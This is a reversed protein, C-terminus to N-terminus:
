PRLELRRRSRPPGSPDDMGHSGGAPQAGGAARRTGQEGDPRDAPRAHRHEARSAVAPSGSQRVPRSGRDTERDAPGSHGAGTARPLAQARESLLALTRVPRRLARAAGAAGHAGSRRQAPGLSGRVRHPPRDGGGERATPGSRLARARGDRQGLRAGGDGSGRPDGRQVVALLRLRRRHDGAHARRESVQQIASQVDDLTPISGGGIAKQGNPGEVVISPTGNFGFSQAQTSGQQIVSDWKSDNRDTNWQDIDPVGAARALGTLFDDTVYGSNEGGQNLYFLQLYNWFRGQEGAALAARMAPKSDPGIILFPQFDYKVNGPKVESSVLDPAVKESFFKCSSCQPDGYETVTVPASAGGLVTGNQSLGGLEANVQQAGQVNAPPNSPESDGGSQSIVILAIVVAVAAFGGIILYQLRRKRALASAESSEVGEREARLRERERQRGEMPPSYRPHRSSMGPM